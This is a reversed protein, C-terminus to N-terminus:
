IIQQEIKLSRTDSQGGEPTGAVKRNYRMNEGKDIGKKVKKLTKETNENPKEASREGGHEDAKQPAETTYWRRLPKDLSFASKKLKKTM